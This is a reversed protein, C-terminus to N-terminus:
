KCDRNRMQSKVSTYYVEKPRHRKTGILFRHGDARRQPMKRGAERWRYRNMMHLLADLHAALPAAIPSESVTMGRERMWRIVTPTRSLVYVHRKRTELVVFAADFLQAALRAGWYAPLVYLVAIDSWNWLLDKCLCVGAFAETDDDTVAVLGEGFHLLEHASYGLINPTTKLEDHLITAEAPTLSRNEARIPPANEPM